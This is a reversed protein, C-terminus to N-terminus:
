ITNGFVSAAADQDWRGKLRIQTSATLQQINGQLTPRCTLSRESPGSPTEQLVWLTQHTKRCTTAKLRITLSTCCCMLWPTTTTTTQWDATPRYSAVVQRAWWLGSRDQYRNSKVEKMDWVPPTLWRQFCMNQIGIFSAAREPKFELVFRSLFIVGAAPKAGSISSMTVVSM